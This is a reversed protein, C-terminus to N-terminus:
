NLKVMTGKVQMIAKSEVTCAGKSSINLSNGELKASAGNMELKQSADLKISGSKLEAKKGSGDLVLMDAGNVKCAIKKKASLVIEGKKGDIELQNEKKKDAVTIKENKDDLLISFEGKTKIEIHEKDKTEDFVITHGGKTLISKVSNKDNVANKPLHDTQNWLCGIVIASNINGYNFGVVVETDVEPIFCTGFEAGAYPQMVRAWDLMKKGDQGIILEVQVMGPHDKDYNKKVIGTALSFFSGQADGDDTEAFLM